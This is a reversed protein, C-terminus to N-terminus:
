LMEETVLDLKEEIYWKARCFLQAQGCVINEKM